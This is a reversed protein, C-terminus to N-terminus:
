SFIKSQDIGTEWEGDSFFKACTWEKPRSTWTHRQMAKWTSLYLRHEHSSIWRCRHRMALTASSTRLPRLPWIHPSARQKNYDNVWLDRPLCLTCSRVEWCICICIDVHLWFLSSIRLSEMLLIRKYQIHNCVQLSAAPSYLESQRAWCWACLVM